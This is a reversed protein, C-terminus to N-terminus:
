LPASNNTNTCDGATAIGGSNVLCALSSSGGSVSSLWWNARGCLKKNRDGATGAFIPYQVPTGIAAWNRGSNSEASNIICGYVEQETPLWLKGYDAWKAGTADTLLGSNSYREPIYLRKEIIQTKLSAPLLQFVGGASADYGHAVSNYANTSYNDVGNLAAYIKSALWPNKEDATGNNNNAPNWPINTGITGTSIFDIHHGVESDGYRYYTDIGAVACNLTKQTITYDAGVSGAALVVPIFDGVHIGKFNNATIRAKIWAWEDGNYPAANIESAFKTKLNVPTHIRDCIELAPLAEYTDGSKSLGEGIVITNQKSNELATIESKHAFPDLASFTKTGDGIVTDKTTTNYAFEGTKIIKNQANWGATTDRRAQITKQETTM